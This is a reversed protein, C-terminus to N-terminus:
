QWLIKVERPGLTVNKKLWLIQVQIKRNEYNLIFTVNKNLSKGKKVVVLGRASFWDRFSMTKKVLALTKKEPYAPDLYIREGPFHNFYVAKGKGISTTLTRFGLVGKKPAGHRIPFLTKLGYPPLPYNLFNRGNRMGLCPEAFVTGGNDVYDILIESQTETMRTMYPIVVARYHQIREFAQSPIFDVNMGSRWLMGHWGKISNKYRYTVANSHNSEETEELRSIMDSEVDYVLAIDGTDKVYNDFIDPHAKVFATIRSLELSRPTDSGDPGVIGCIGSENCLEEPKFQWLTLGRVGNGIAEWSRLRIDEATFDPTENSWSNSYFENVWFNRKLARMWDTQLSYIHYNRRWGKDTFAAERELRAFSNFEGAWHPFSCGYIDSEKANQWDDSGDNLIDQLPSCMGVHTMLPRKDDLEIIARSVLRLREPVRSRGWEKWLAVTTYNAFDSPPKIEEFAGEALGLSRNYEEITHFREKLWEMYLRVSHECACEGYPRNRPENWLHWFLLEESSGYRKVADRVLAQARERVVPHDFCPIMGGVYYSGCSYPTLIRGDPAKRFAHYKDFLWEPGTELMFKFVIKMGHKRCIDFLRDIDDWEYIGERREHVRWQPRLQIFDLNLSKAKAIDKEWCEPGPTPYRYYQSGFLFSM